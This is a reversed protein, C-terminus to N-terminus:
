EPDTIHPMAWQRLFEDAGNQYRHGTALPRRAVLLIQVIASHAFTCSSLDIRAEPNGQLVTLLPEADEPGCDGALHITGGHLTISM